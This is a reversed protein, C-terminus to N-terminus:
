PLSSPWCLGVSSTVSLGLALIGPGGVIGAYGVRPGSTIHGEVGVGVSECVGGGSWSGEENGRVGDDLM